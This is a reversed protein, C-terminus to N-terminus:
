SNTADIAFVRLLTHHCLLGSRRCLLSAVFSTSTSASDNEHATTLQMASPYINGFSVIISSFALIAFNETSIAHAISELSFLTYFSRDEGTECWEM